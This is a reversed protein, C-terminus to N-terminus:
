ARKEAERKNFMIGQEQSNGGPARENHYQTLSIVEEISLPTGFPKNKFCEYIEVCDVGVNLVNEEVPIDNHIHGSLTISNNMARPYHALYFNYSKNGFTYSVHAEELCVFGEQTLYRFMKNSDHNGRIFVINRVGLTKVWEITRTPSVFSIDGLHYLVDNEQVTNRISESLAKHMDDITSFQERVTSYCGEGFMKKHGFHWDSTFFVTM